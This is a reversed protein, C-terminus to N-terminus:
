ALPMGFWVTTGANRVPVFGGHQWFAIGGANSASAGLHIGKVGAARAQEVWRQLLATGIRQGRLRPLLNMHVHAPYQAVIDAPNSSPHDILAIRQRDAATLQGAPTAAYHRRLDPWWERELREEFAATDFTGVIYGAVGQDDEAVIARAPELVGYPASYIHGVAKRDSHLGSADKGAAGTLLCIEYLADLDRPEYGRLEVM